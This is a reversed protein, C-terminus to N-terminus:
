EFEQNKKIEVRTKLYEGQTIVDFFSIEVFKKRRSNKTTKSKFNQTNKLISRAQHYFFSTEVFKKRNLNKTRKSKFEGGQTIIDFFSTEVFKKRDLHKTRKSKVEGGQTIIDIFSTEM